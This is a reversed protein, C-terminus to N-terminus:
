PFSTRAPRTAADGASGELSVSSRIAWEAIPIEKASAVVCIRDFRIQRGVLREAVMKRAARKEQSDAVGYLLSIHPMFADLRDSEIRAIARKKLELLPGAPEFSAYFSRYYLESVDIDRVMASFGAIGAAIETTKPTLDGVGRAMDEVLTLHPRFVPAGFRAALGAVTEQLLVEDDQAPMLWISHLESM